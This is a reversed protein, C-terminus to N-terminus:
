RKKRGKRRVVKRKGRGGFKFPRTNCEKGFVVHAFLYYILYLGPFCFAILMAIVKVVVGSRRNCEYALYTTALAIALAVLMGVMSVGSMDVMGENQPNVLSELAVAGFYEMVM